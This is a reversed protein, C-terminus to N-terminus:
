KLNVCVCVCMFCVCKGRCVFLAATHWCSSKIRGSWDTIPNLTLLLSIFQTILPFKTFLSAKERLIFSVDTGWLCLSFFVITVNQISTNFLHAVSVTCVTRSIWEDTKLFWNKWLSDTIWHQSPQTHPPFVHLICHQDLPEIGGCWCKKPPFQLVRSFGLVSM